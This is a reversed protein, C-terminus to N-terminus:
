SPVPRGALKDLVPLAAALRRREDDSLCALREAVADVRAARLRALEERGAETIAAVVVRRDRAGACREVLGARELRSVIATMSPQAVREAAALDGIRHPGEEALRALVSTQTRSPGGGHRRLERVVGGIRDAFAAALEDLDSPETGAGV